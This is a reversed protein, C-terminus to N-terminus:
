EGLVKTIGSGNGDIYVMSLLITTAFLVAARSPEGGGCYYNCDEHRLFLVVFVASNRRKSINGLISEPM